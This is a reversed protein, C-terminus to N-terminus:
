FMDESDYELVSFREIEKVQLLKDTLEKSDKVSIEVVLDLGKNTFNRSKVRFSKTNEKIIKDVEDSKDAACHVVLIHPAKGFSVKELILMVVTVVLSTIIALEYLQCGCTIGIHISWLVYIMDVPDKIATRFRIIALAGITGLTIVLNSQLCMIITSIFFPIVAISINFSKSYFTRHSVVRYIFFEYAALCCVVLLVTLIVMTSLVSNNYTNTFNEIVSNIMGM